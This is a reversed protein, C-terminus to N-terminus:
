GHKKAAVRIIKGCNPAYAHAGASVKQAEGLITASDSDALAAVVDRESACFQPASVDAIQKGYENALLTRLRDLRSTPDGRGTKKYYATMTAEAEHLARINKQTFGTYAPVLDRGDSGQRCTVTVVMLKSHLRLLNEAKAEDATYCASGAMAPAAMVGLCLLALLIKKM